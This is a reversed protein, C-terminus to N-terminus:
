ATKALPQFTVVENALYPAEKGCVRCRVLSIGTRVRTLAPTHRGCFLCVVEGCFSHDSGHIM